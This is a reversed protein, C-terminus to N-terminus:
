IFLECLTFIWRVLFLILFLILFAIEIKKNLKIKRRFIHYVFAIAPIPFLPHYEFAAAFDLRLLALYARTMGCGPCPIGFILQVPCHYFLVIVIAFVCFKMCALLVPKAYVKPKGAAEDRKCFFNKIKGM